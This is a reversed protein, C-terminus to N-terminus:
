WARRDIVSRVHFRTSILSVPACAVREIEEIFRITDPQLQDFRRAERNKINLYDVFTLAIDTAGNLQAARHLLEWDFEGVRRQKNSVSGKETSRLERVPIKSRRAIEAWSTTQGMPGSTKGRTGPSQVRIPYTRCVMITRRVRTPAIGMEALCGSVTTDRSTVHPYYGHFLSLATGQTGELLIRDGRAYAAFLSDRTPAIFPKLEPVDAALRVGGTRGVIRRATAAGVGQGTSGIEKVLAVESKKDVKDIIMAQPDIRLRDFELQCKAIEDFLVDTNLVAGPGILIPVESTMTASPLLRHTFPGDDLPVKHGANPGGVRCLMDYESGIAFAINGKGESGYQGGIIVDVLAGPDRASLGLYAAARVEVDRKTSLATDIVVDADQALSPVQRETKNKLLKTYSSTEAFGSKHRRRYRRELEPRPADLHVHVVQRPLGARLAQIQEAIRVADVLVIADSDLRNIQPVLDDAIWSGKTARDLQEGFRQMATRESAIKGKARSKLLLRTRYHIAGYDDVLRRALTTKGASVPGSLVVVVRAM